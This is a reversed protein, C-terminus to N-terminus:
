ESFCIFPSVFIDVIPNNPDSLIVPFLVLGYLVYSNRNANWLLLTGTKCRKQYLSINTSFRRKLVGVEIQRGRHLHDRRFKASNQCRFVHTGPSDYPTTQTIKVNLRKPVIGRRTVSPRFSVHRCCLM